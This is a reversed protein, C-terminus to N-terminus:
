AYMGKIGLVNQVFTQESQLKLRDKEAMANYFHDSNSSSKAQQIEKKLWDPSAKVL